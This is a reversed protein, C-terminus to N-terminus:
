VYLYGTDASCLGKSISLDLLLEPSTTLGLKCLSATYAAFDLHPCVKHGHLVRYLQGLALPMFETLNNEILVTEASNM